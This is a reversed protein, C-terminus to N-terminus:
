AQAVRERREIGAASDRCQAPAHRQDSTSRFCRAAVPGRNGPRPANARSERVPASTPAQPLWTSLTRRSLAAVSDDRLCLRRPPYTKARSMHVQSCPRAADLAERRNRGTRQPRLLRKRVLVEPMALTTMRAPRRRGSRAALAQRRPREFDPWPDSRSRVAGASARNPEARRATRAAQRSVNAGPSSDAHSPQQDPLRKKVCDSQMLRDGRGVPMRAHRDVFTAAARDVCLHHATPSRDLPPEGLHQKSNM